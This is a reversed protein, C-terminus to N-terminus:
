MDFEKIKPFIGFLGGTHVFLINKSNKLKLNLEKKMGFMAKGTYVPDLVVGEVKAFEELFDLEEKTNLAYGRGVYGDIIEIENREVEVNEGTYKINEQILELIVDKFYEATDSVNVGVIKKDLKKIKNELFLGAYTGGSGVATVITDFEIGLEKEQELIERLCNRYGFVGIGNSAGLPIIYAKKGKEEMEKKINEMIMDRSSSFEETSVLRIEAGLIKDLFYNGDLSPNKEDSRLLLISKKGLKTALAAVARAHNSQIGGCTIFIEAGDKLGENFSYELKRVKNGSFEIGTLDDRKIYINKGAKEFYRELKEIKTPLNAIKEKAVM